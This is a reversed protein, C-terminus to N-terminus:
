SIFIKVCVEVSEEQLTSWIKFKLLTMNSPQSNENWSFLSSNYEPIQYAMIQFITNYCNHTKFLLIHWDWLKM